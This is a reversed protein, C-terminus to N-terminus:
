SGLAAVISTFSIGAFLTLFGVVIVRLYISEKPLGRGMQQGDQNKDRRDDDLDSTQQKVRDASGQNEDELFYGLNTIQEKVRDARHWNRQIHEGYSRIVVWGYGCILIGVVGIALAPLPKGVAIGSPMISLTGQNLSFAAVGSMLTVVWTGITWQREKLMDARNQFYKWLDILEGQEIKKVALGEPKSRQSQDTM